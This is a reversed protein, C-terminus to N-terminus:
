VMYLDEVDYMHSHHFIMYVGLVAIILLLYIGVDIVM